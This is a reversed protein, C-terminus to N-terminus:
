LICHDLVNALQIAKEEKPLQNFIKRVKVMQFLTKFYDFNPVATRFVIEFPFHSSFYYEGLAIVKLIDSVSDLRKHKGQEKEFEYGLFKFCEGIKLKNKGDTLFLKGFRRKINIDGELTFPKIDCKESSIVPEFNNNFTLDVKKNNKLTEIANNVYKEIVSAKEPETSKLVRINKKVVGVNRFAMGFNLSQSSKIDM